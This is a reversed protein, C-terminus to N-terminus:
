SFATAFRWNKLNPPNVLFKKSFPPEISAKLQRSQVPLEGLSSRSRHGM